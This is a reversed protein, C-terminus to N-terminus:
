SCFSDKAAELLSVGKLLTTIGALEGERLPLALRKRGARQRVSSAFMLMYISSNQLEDTFCSVHILSWALVCGTRDLTDYSRPVQSLGKLPM